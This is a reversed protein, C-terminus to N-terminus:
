LPQLCAPQFWPAWPNLYQAFLNTHVPWSHQFTLQEYNDIPIHLKNLKGCITRTGTPRTTLIRRREGGRGPNSEGVPLENKKM